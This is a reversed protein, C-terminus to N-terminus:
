SSDSVYPFSCFTGYWRTRPPLLDLVELVYVLCV